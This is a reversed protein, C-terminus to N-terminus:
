DEKFINGYPSRKEERMSFNVKPMKVPKIGHDSEFHNDAFIIKAEKELDVISYNGINKVLEQFEETEYVSAYKEDNLINMKQENLKSEEANEKYEVLASYNNRMDQLDSYESDTLYEAHLNYREGSLAVNDGEVTYNQGYIHNGGEFVFRNDYVALIYYWCNDIEEYSSILNYLAYRIDDHSIEFSRTMPENEVVVPDKAGFLEEFKETLEDDSMNSYDFDIDDVTKGYKQLLEEFKTLEAGGEKNKQTDFRSIIDNLQERMEVLIESYDHSEYKQIESFDCPKINSGQMGPRIENGDEDVGLITVGSFYFDEIDLRKEKANFSFKRISIEVSVSCEQLRDLIESAKSYEEFICGNVEVYNKEKEEDYVISANCSEPIIGVPFEDYVTDDGEKHANHGYFEPQGDVYHIYALIPRNSFSPLASTMSEDSIYSRNVNLGTHCAQLKVKKLGEISEDSECVLKDNRTHVVIPKGTESYDFKSFNNKLCFEYLDEIFLIRQSMGRRERIEESGLPDLHM